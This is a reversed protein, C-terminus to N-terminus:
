IFSSHMLFVREKEQEETDPVVGIGSHKLRRATEKVTETRRERKKQRKTDRNTHIKREAM